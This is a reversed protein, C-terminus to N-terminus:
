STNANPTSTPSPTPSPTVSPTLSPTLSPTASPTLSPSPSPTLSPTPTPTGTPTGEVTGFFGLIAAMTQNRVSASNIGEFPFGFNVVKRAPSGGSFQIAAGGTGGGTYNACLVSGNIGNLVDPYDANYMTASAPFNMTIGALITGAVGTAQYSGGDDGVYAAALYNNYFTPAIGNTPRALDFGVEAGSVFINRGGLNLFNQVATRETANFTVDASSEEGAIWVLVEYNGLAIDSSIVAENSASDFSFGAASIASGHQRVYNYSNNREVNLLDVPSSLGRDVDNYRDLRDYGNVVLIKPTGSARVRVALVESPLSEGGANTATVRFYYVQGATLGNITTSTTASAVPLGFGLGDTSQYVRYGTAAGGNAGGTPPAAWSLTVGGSGNNVARFRVPPEPLFVLPTGQYQNFYRVVAKYAARGFVNRAKPDRLLAADEVNDHFAIECITADMEGGATGGYTTDAFYSNTIEGYGGTSYSSSRNNWTYEWNADEILADADISDAVKTAWDQQHLTTSSTVLGVCGRATGTAANSHWALYISYKYADAAGAELRNMYTAVRPPASWSLNEDDSTNANDWMADATTDGNGWGNQIWYVTSEERRSYGSVGGGNSVNGMGNGFRIADAITVYSGAPAGAPLLNSIVVSGTAPNSGAAFYYQGLYVWGRGVRRHNVRILSEGGTSRIRYLQGPARDSGYNVWTYVPYYGAAPINPTYTATATETTASTAYRYPVGSGYFRTSSSNSWSGTFTAAPNDVIVENNQFGVPRIPIVTAGANLLYPIFFEVADTNGFDELMNNVFGRQWRWYPTGADGDWTRGHGGYTFVNIGTLPGFQDGTTALSGQGSINKGSKAEEAQLARMKAYWTEYDPNPQPGPGDPEYWDDPHPETARDNKVNLEAIFADVPKYESDSNARAFLKAGLLTDDATTFYHNLVDIATYAPELEISPQGPPLTIRMEIYGDVIGVSDVTTGAALLPHGLDDTVSTM